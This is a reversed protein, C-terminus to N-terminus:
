MPSCFHCWVSFSSSPVGAGHTVSKGILGLAMCSVEVTLQGDCLTCPASGEAAGGTTGIIGAGVSGDQRRKEAEEDLKAASSFIVCFLCLQNLPNLLM